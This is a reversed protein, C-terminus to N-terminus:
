YIILQNYFFMRETEGALTKYTNTAVIHIKDTIYKIQERKKNLHRDPRVAPQQPSATYIRSRCRSLRNAPGTRPPLTVIM